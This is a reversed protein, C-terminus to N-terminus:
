YNRFIRNFHTSLQVQETSELSDFDMLGKAWIRALDNNTAMDGMFANWQSTMENIATLQSEKNQNRIQGALYVLSLIVGIAGALEAVAGIADWNM